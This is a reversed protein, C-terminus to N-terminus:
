NEGYKPLVFNLPKGARNLNQGEQMYLIKPSAADEGVKQTFAIHDIPVM